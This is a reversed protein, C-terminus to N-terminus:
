VILRLWSIKKLILSLFILALGAVAIIGATKTYQIKVYGEFGFFLLILIFIWLFDPKELYDM